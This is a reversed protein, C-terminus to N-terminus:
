VKDNGYLLGSVIGYFLYQNGRAKILLPALPPSPAHGGFSISDFSYGGGGNDMM